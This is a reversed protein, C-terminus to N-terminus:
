ERGKCMWDSNSITGAFSIRLVKAISNLLYSNFLICLIVPVCLMCLSNTRNYGQIGVKTYKQEAIGAVALLICIVLVIIIFCLRSLESCRWVVQPSILKCFVLM